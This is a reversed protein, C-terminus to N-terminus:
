SKFEHDLGSWNTHVLQTTQISGRYRVTTKINNEENDDGCVTNDYFSSAKLGQARGLKTLFMFSVCSEHQSVEKDTRQM